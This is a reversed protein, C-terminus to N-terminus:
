AWPSDGGLHGIVDATPVSSGCGRDPDGMTRGNYENGCITDQVEPGNDYPAEHRISQYALALGENDVIRNGYVANNTGPYRNEPFEVLDDMEGVLNANGVIVGAGRGDEIVCWRLTVNAGGLNMSAEDSPPKEDHLRYYGSKGIDTCYEIVVDYCGQKADVLEAHPHGATHKIHHVHYDHSEDVPFEEIDLQEEPPESDDLWKNFPRGIYIIEGNHGWRDSLQHVLGAPGTVEFEGIEVDNAYNCSICSSRTNGVAHPKLVVDEIYGPFEDQFRSLYINHYGYSDLEDPRTRDSLGDFTLGTVHIHSHNIELSRHYIAEPPGTITIPKDPEGSRVTRAHESYRGPQVHITQGPLAQKLARQITAFPSNETGNNANRGQIDVFIQDPEANPTNTTTPAATNRSPETPTSPPIPSNTTTPDDADSCGSLLGSGVGALALFRRRNM